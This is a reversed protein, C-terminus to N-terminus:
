ESARINSAQKAARVRIHALQHRAAHASGRPRRSGRPRVAPRGVTAHLVVRCRPRRHSHCHRRWCRCSCGDHVLSLSLLSLSAATSRQPAAHRTPTATPPQRHRLLGHRSAHIQNRTHLHPPQKHQRRRSEQSKHELSRPCLRLSLESFDRVELEKLQLELLSIRPWM